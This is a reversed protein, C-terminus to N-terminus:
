LDPYERMMQLASGFTNRVVEVTETWPWLWAMDIHSNGSLTISFQKMFARLKELEQQSTRLSNDFAQQDSKGYPRALANTDIAKVAADLIAERDAKGEAYADIVPRIS